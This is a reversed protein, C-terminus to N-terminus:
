LGTFSTQKMTLTAGYLGTKMPLILLSLPQKVADSLSDRRAQRREMLSLTENIAKDGDVIIEQMRLKPLDYGEIDYGLKKPDDMVVCWSSLWQWFLSEAHGKLRWKSTEGGDHVFYMALM